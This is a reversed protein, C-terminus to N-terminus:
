LYQFKDLYWKHDAMTALLGHELIKSKDPNFNNMPEGSLSTM